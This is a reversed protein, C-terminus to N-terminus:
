QTSRSDTLRELIELVGQTLAASSVFDASKKLTPDANAPCAFWNVSERIALDGMTDGIGAAQERTFGTAEFFRTIGTAKSIHKLDCNIYNWSRSIRIPWGRKEAEEAIVPMMPDLATPSDHYPSFSAMKGPQLALGTNAFRQMTWARAEAMAALHTDTIAPDMDYHNDGPYYLYVGNECIIPLELNGLLRTMCEAFPQPRGTCLTLRPRDQQEIALRNQEAVHLLRPLDLADAHESILCGDVDSLVIDIAARRAQDIPEAM